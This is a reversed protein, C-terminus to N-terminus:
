LRRGSGYIEEFLKSELDDKIMVSELLDRMDNATIERAAQGDQFLNALLDALTRQTDVM